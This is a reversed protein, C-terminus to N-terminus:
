FHKYSTNEFSVQSGDNDILVVSDKADKVVGIKSLSIPMLYTAALFETIQNQPVTFLLEYDDGGALATQLHEPLIQIIKGVPSSTPISAVSIEAGVNSAKCLKQLDGILGDSIDMSASAFEAIVSAMMSTPQPLLYRDLLFSKEHKGLIRSDIEGQKITLGLAADGIKGTVFIGDGVGAGLRSTYDGEDILGFATISITTGGPSRYTDGGTLVMEFGAQDEALGKTFAAIWKETWNEDLGLALSYAFPVAGKAVLDSINVRLAKKAILRPLDDAFFHIGAALADQTVVLKKGDPISLIAADDLLGFAGEGSLPAFYKAILDFEDPRPKMTKELAMSDSERVVMGGCRRFAQKPGLGLTTIKRSAGLAINM